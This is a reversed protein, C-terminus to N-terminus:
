IYKEMWDCYEYFNIHGKKKSTLGKLQYIKTFDLSQLTQREFVFAVHVKIFTTIQCFFLIDLTNIYKSITCYGM